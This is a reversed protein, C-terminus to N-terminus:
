RLQSADNKQTLLVPPAMKALGDPLRVSERQSFYVLAFGAAMTTGLAGYSLLNSDIHGFYDVSKMAVGGFFAGISYNQGRRNRATLNQQALKLAIGETIDYQNLGNDTNLNVILDGTHATPVAGRYSIVTYGPGHPVQASGLLLVRPNEPLSVEVAEALSCLAEHDPELEAEQMKLRWDVLQSTEVTFGTSTELTAM